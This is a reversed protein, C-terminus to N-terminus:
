IEDLNQCNLIRAIECITWAPKAPLDTRKDFESKLNEADHRNKCVFVVKDVNALHQLKDVESKETSVVIEIAYTKGNKRALVDIDMM